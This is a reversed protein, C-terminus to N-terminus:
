CPTRTADLDLSKRMSSFGLRKTGACFSTDGGYEVHFVAKGQGIFPSYRACEGFKVCEEVVAFDFDGALDGVQEADNKLGVSLGRSHALDAIARNYRLQDAATLPFGTEHGYGEVLDPEIADFGSARCTDFRGAMIPLLVDLRRIDLWREGPWGNESGLVAAPFADRDPRFDEWAGVNVYCIVKRGRRHLEAVVDAGNEVGDIDYVPVDVSLDVPTTLQWQWGTGPRPRWRGATGPAVSRGPLGATASVPGSPAAPMAGAPGRPAGPGIPGGPIAGGGTRSPLPTLPMVQPGTVDQQPGGTLVVAVLGGLLLLVVVAVTVLLGPTRWRGTRRVRM